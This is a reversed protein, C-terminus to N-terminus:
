ILDASDPFLQSLDDKGVIDPRWVGDFGTALEVMAKEDNETKPSPPHLKLIYSLETQNLNDVDQPLFDELYDIANMDYDGFYQYLFVGIKRYGAKITQHIPKANQIKSGLFAYEKLIHNNKTKQLMELNKTFAKYYNSDDYFRYLDRQNWYDELAHELSNKVSYFLAKNKQSKNKNMKNM